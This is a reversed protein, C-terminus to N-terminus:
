RFIINTIVQAKVHANLRQVLSRRNMMLEHRLVSSTLTVYLIQNKISLDKTYTQVGSGLVQKWAQILRYENLPTEIGEERCTERVLESISKMSGRKM